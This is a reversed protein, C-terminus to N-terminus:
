KRECKSQRRGQVSRRTAPMSGSMCRRSNHGKRGTDSGWRVGNPLHLPHLRRRFVNGEVRPSRYSITEISGASEIPELIEQRTPRGFPCGVECLPPPPHGPSTRRQLLVDTASDSRYLRTAVWWGTIGTSTPKRIGGGLPLWRPPIKEFSVSIFFAVM